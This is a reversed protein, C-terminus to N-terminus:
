SSWNGARGSTTLAGPAYGRILAELQQGAAAVDREADEHLGETVILAEATEPRTASPVSQRWCWRRAVVVGAADVFIVEGPEPHTVGESGLDEFSETGVAFRVEIPLRVTTLDIVAVPLGHAISVLNGLDVLTGISPIDGQKELRRLLSEPASRYQTPKVGFASFARRWAAISPWESVPTAALRDTAARQAETYAAALAAPTSQNTLGTAHIYAARVAPYRELVASTYLFPQPTM